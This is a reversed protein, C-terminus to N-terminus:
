PWNRVFNSTPVVLDKRTVSEVSIHDLSGLSTECRFDIMSKVSITEMSLIFYVTKYLVSEEVFSSLFSFKKLYM